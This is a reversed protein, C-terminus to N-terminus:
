KVEGKGKSIELRIKKSSRAGAAALVSRIAQATRGGKGIIKGIDHESVSLSLSVNHSKEVMEVRIEEPHDVLPTVIATILEELNVQMM